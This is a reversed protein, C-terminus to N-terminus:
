ASTKIRTKCDEQSSSHFRPNLASSELLFTKVNKNTYINIYKKKNINQGIVNKNSGFKSDAEKM